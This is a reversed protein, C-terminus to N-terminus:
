GGPKILALAIFSVANICGHAVVAPWISKHHLVIAGLMAGLVMTQLVGTAGQYIHGLGFLFSSLLVAVVNKARLSWGRPFIRQLGAMTFTRWLEERLGAVVFSIVTVMVVKYLLSSNAMAPGFVKQAGQGNEEALKVMKAVDLGFLSLLTLGCIMVILLGVRMAISYGIGWGIAKWGNRLRLLLDDKTARAFLWAVGWLLGFLAFEIVAFFLLHLVSKPLVM